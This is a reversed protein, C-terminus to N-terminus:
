LKKFFFQWRMVCKPKVLSADSICLKLTIAMQFTCSQNPEGRLVYYQSLASYPMHHCRCEEKNNDIKGGQREWIRAHAQGYTTMRKPSVTSAPVVVGYMHTLKGHSRLGMWIKAVQWGKGGQQWLSQRFVLNPLSHCKLSIPFIQFSVALYLPM